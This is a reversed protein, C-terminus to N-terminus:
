LRSRATSRRAVGTAHMPLKSPVAPLHFAHYPCTAPVASIADVCSPLCGLEVTRCRLRIQVSDKHSEVMLVRSTDMPARMVARMPMRQAVQHVWLRHSAFLELEDDVDKWM